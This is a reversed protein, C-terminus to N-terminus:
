KCTASGCNCQPVYVHTIYKGALRETLPVYGKINSPAVREGNFSFLDKEKGVSKPKKAAPFLNIPLQHQKALVGLISAGIDCLAGKKDVRYYALWVEKVRNKFFLFGAMNDAILVPKIKRKMLARCNARAAELSPRGELVVVEKVKKAKLLDFLLESVVGQVVVAREKASSQSAAPSSRNKTFM